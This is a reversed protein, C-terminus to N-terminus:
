GRGQPEIRVNASMSQLAVRAETGRKDGGQPRNQCNEKRGEVSKKKTRKNKKNKNSAGVVSSAAAARDVHGAPDEQKRRQTVFAANDAAWMHNLPQNTASTTACHSLDPAAGRLMDCVM